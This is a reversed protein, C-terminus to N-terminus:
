FFCPALARHPADNLSTHDRPSTPLNLQQPALDAAASWADARYL